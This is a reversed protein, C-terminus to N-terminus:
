AVYRMPYITRIDYGNELLHTAFSHRFTHSSAQKTIKTKRIAEKIRKQVTSEHLHHRYYFNFKEAYIFKDAPFMYQWGFEKGANPYKLRLAAPLITEGRGRRLDNDHIVKVKKVEKELAALLITPLITQRDKEGKAERVTIMKYNFDIDKIRLRLAEGLRLGGGYLLSAVLKSTGDLNEIVDHVERKTFVVPLRLSRKARQVDELWGIEINLVKKYLYLIANLAQNQTSASVKREIALHTLFKELAEKKLNKPHEKNNFLIYEKM